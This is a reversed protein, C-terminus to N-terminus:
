CDFQKTCATRKQFGTGAFVPYVSNCSTPELHSVPWPLDRPTLEDKFFERYSADTALRNDSMVVKILLMSLM